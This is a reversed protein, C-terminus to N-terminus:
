GYTLQLDSRDDEEDPHRLLDLLGPAPPVLLGGAGAATAAELAGAWAQRGPPPAARVWREVVGAAEVELAGEEAGARAIILRGRSLLALTDCAAGAAPAAGAEPLMGLRVRWTVAALAGLLVWPDADGGLVWLSDVGAAEYATAEALWTGPDAGPSSLEVGVLPPTV